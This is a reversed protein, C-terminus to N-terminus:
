EAGVNLLQGMKASLDDMQSQLSAFDKRLADNETQLDEIQKQQAKIGEVAVAVINAYKVGKAVEHKEDWTVLEPLVHHVDEAIFGIDPRAARKRSGTSRSVRCGSSRQWRM